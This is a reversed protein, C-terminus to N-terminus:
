KLKTAIFRDISYKGPGAILLCVFVALYILAMEGNGQGTLAAGHVGFFAVSMAIILPISALRTLLGVIIGAACFFEAIVALGLGLSGGMFDPAMTGFNILKVSGHNLM